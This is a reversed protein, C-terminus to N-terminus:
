DCCAPAAMRFPSRGSNIGGLAREMGAPGTLLQEAVADSVKNVIVSHRVDRQKIANLVLNVVAVDVPRIRGSELTLVFFLRCCGAEQLARRIERAAQKQTHVDLLGPTDTYVVRDIEHSKAAMTLGGGISVGSCFVVKQVLANLLTSKGAGPNGVFVVSEKVTNM